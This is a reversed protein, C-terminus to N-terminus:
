KVRDQDLDIWDVGDWGIEKLGIRINNEWTRRPRGFTRKGQYKGLSVKYAGRREGMHAVHRAWRMKWQASQYYVMACSFCARRTTSWRPSLDRVRYLLNFLHLHLTSVPKWCRRQGTLVKCKCKKLKRYLTRSRRGRQDVLRRAPKEHAM